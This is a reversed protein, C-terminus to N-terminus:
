FNWIKTLSQFTKSHSGNCQAKWSFCSLVLIDSFKINKWGFIFLDTQYYNVQLHPLWLRVLVWMQLAANTANILSSDSIEGLILLACMEHGQWVYLCVFIVCWYCVDKKFIQFFQCLVSVSTKRCLKFNAVSVSFYDNTINNDVETSKLSRLCDFYVFYLMCTHM